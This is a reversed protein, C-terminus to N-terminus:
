GQNIPLLQHLLSKEDPILYFNSPIRTQIAKKYALILPTQPIKLLMKENGLIFCTMRHKKLSKTTRQSPIQKIEVEEREKQINRWEDILANLTDESLEEGTGCKDL